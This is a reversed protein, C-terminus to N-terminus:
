EYMPILAVSKLGREGCPSRGGNQPAVGAAQNSKLGREGCPSRRITIGCPRVLPSKLGREGCPSRGRFLLFFVMVAAIEIWAGRVPLSRVGPFASVAVFFIEIWAGRVPLSPIYYCTNNPLYSKLGREGCPSRCARTTWRPLARQIEIWAGRVPLSWLGPRFSTIVM